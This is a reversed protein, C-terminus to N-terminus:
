ACARKEPRDGDLGEEWGVLRGGLSNVGAEDIRVLAMSGMLSSDATVHVAQMYPSRGALQGPNRGPRDLLVPLARDVSERNFAQQQKDLLRQLEELRVAAVAKNVRDELM